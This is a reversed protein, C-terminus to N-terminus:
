ACSCNPSRTNTSSGSTPRVTSFPSSATTTSDTFAAEFGDAFPKGYDNNTYTLAVETIGYSMLLKALVVGQKSDSPVTRFILDDDDLGTIAPSTSGPSIMPVGSPIAVNNAAATTAGSCLAGLIAVVGDSEVLRQASATANQGDCATDARVIELMHGNVGGATNIEEIALEGGHAMPPVLSELPGTYGMLFGIKHTDGHGDAYSLGSALLAASAATALIIKKM